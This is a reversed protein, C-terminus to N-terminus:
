KAFGIKNKLAALWILKFYRIIPPNTQKLWLSYDDFIKASKRKFEAVFQRAKTTQDTSTYSEVIYKKLRGLKLAIERFYQPFKSAYSLLINAQDVKTQITDYRENSEHSHVISLPEDVWDFKYGHILRLMLEYDEHSYLTTNFREKKIVSAKIMLNVPFLFPGKCLRHAVNDSDHAILGEDKFNLFVTTIGKNELFNNTFSVDIGPNGQFHEVQKLIKDKMFNMMM